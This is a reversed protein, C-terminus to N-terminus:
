RSRSASSSTELSLSREIFLVSSYPITFEKDPKEPKEATFGDKYVDNIVLEMSLNNVFHAKRKMGRMDAFVSIDSKDM